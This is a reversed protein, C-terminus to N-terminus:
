ECNQFVQLKAQSRTCEDGNIDNATLTLYYRSDAFISMPLSYELNTTNWSLLPVDCM